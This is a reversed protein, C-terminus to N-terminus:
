AGNARKGKWRIRSLSATLFVLDDFRRCSGVLFFGFFIILGRDLFPHIYAIYPPILPIAEQPTPQMPRNYKGVLRLALRPLAASEFQGRKAEPYHLLRHIIPCKYYLTAANWFSVVQGGNFV